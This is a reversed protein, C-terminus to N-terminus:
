CSVTRQPTDHSREHRAGNSSVMLFEAHAQYVGPRCATAAVAQVETGGGSNNKDAAQGVPLLVCGCDDLRFLYVEVGLYQQARGRCDIKAVSDVTGPFHISNHPWGLNFDCDGVRELPSFRGDALATPAFALLSVAALGICVAARAFRILGSKVM